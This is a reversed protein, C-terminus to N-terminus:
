GVEILGRDARNLEDVREDGCAVIDEIRVGFEGPLYIGPEVSFTMGPELALDYGEILYPHEHGELGIGHGTRHIFYEGYGGDVIVSRAARDVEQCAVGPAVAQRGARNAAEVLGHVEVQRDTPAGVVFTRTVDSHYGDVVGGFDCVVVDGPQVVRESADHHPSAGNPGSAILTFWSATHGEEVVMRAFDAAIERETRGGFGVEGPVRELVRDTAEAAARLSAIEEPEKRMRLERSLGSLGIWQRDPIRSQMRILFVSWMHDGIAIQDADSLRSAVLQVPDQDETWAVVDFDGDPLRPAELQPIFMTPTGEAPVALATLRETPMATYGTFYPLDSGVSLVAAGTGSRRMIEQLRRVRAAYDFVM